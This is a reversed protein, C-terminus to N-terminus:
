YHDSRNLYNQGLTKIRSIHNSCFNEISAVIISETQGCSFIMIANNGRLAECTESKGLKENEVCFLLALSRLRYSYLSTDVSWCEHFDYLPLCALNLRLISM